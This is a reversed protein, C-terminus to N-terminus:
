MKQPASIGMLDLTNKIVIKTALVLSLRARTLGQDESLVRCDHYFRHFCDAVNIAYRPLRQVQYDRATDEVIEPFKILEKILALESPHVLLVLDSRTRELVLDSRTRSLISCIRAHAYQVYYVPNKESQEKALAVDFEMQTDISKMLYFFRVADLGAEEVLWELTIIEGKRKSLKAAGRIRVMQTILFEVEPPDGFVKIGARIKEVHEQHDAGWINIVLSFKRSFKHGHYSLDPLLYAPEGTSRVIVWDRSAGLSTGRLWEAGEKKYVLKKKKLLQYTKDVRGEEYLDEESIWEDFRIHLTNEIFEKNDSQIERAMLFGADTPDGLEQNGASPSARWPRSIGLERIKTELYPTKYAEGEGIVTKGLEKIQTSSKADQVYYERTVRWGAKELVRSLTDGFFAGRGNGIHLPGTPNASIFEVNVKRNKGSEGSGYSTGGAIITLLENTFVRPNLFLNIFGPGAVEVKEFFDPSAARIRGALVAAVERPSKQEEKSIKLAVNTAFDGHAPNEPHELSFPLDGTRVANRIKLDLIDTIIKKIEDRIM